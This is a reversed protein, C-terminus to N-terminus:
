QTESYTERTVWNTLDPSIFNVEAWKPLTINNNTSIKNVKYVNGAIAIRVLSTSTNVVALRQGIRSPATFNVNTIIAISNTLVNTVVNLYYFYDGGSLTANNTAEVYTSVLKFEAMEFGNSVVQLATNVRDRIDKPSGLPPLNTTTVSVAKVALVSLIWLLAIKTKM